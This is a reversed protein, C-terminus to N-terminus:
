GYVKVNTGLQEKAYKIIQPSIRSCQSVNLWSLCQGAASDTFRKMAEDTVHDTREIDLSILTHAMQETIADLVSDTFVYLGPLHLKKIPCSTRDKQMFRVLSESNISSQCCGQLGLVRLHDLQNIADLVEETIVNDSFYLRVTELRSASNLLACLDRSNFRPGQRWLFNIRLDRLQPCGVTALASMTDNTLTHCSRIRITELTRHHKQVIPILHRDCLGQITELTLERLGPGHVDAFSTTSLYSGAMQIQSVFLCSEDINTLITGLDNRNVGLNIRIRRLNPVLSLIHSLEPMSIPTDLVLDTLKLLPIIPFRKLSSRPESIYSSGQSSSLPFFQPFSLLLEAHFMWQVYVPHTLQNSLMFVGSLGVKKSLRAGPTLNTGIDCHNDSIDHWLNPWNLLYLRWTGSVRTCRIRERFTLKSFINGLIDYPLLRVCDYSM